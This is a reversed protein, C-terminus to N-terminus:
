QNINSQGLSNTSYHWIFLFIYSFEPAPFTCDTYRSAITSPDFKSGRSSYCKEERWKTWVPEPLGGLGKGLPYRPSMWRLYLPWPSFIVVRWVGGVLASDLSRPDIFESEGYTKMAHHKFLWACPCESPLVLFCSYAVKINTYILGLM